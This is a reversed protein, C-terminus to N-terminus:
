SVSLENWFASTMTAGASIVSPLFSCFSCSTPIPQARGHAPRGSRGSVTSSVCHCLTRWLDLPEVGYQDEVVPRLVSLEDRPTHALTPHVRLQDRVVRGEVADPAVSGLADDQGASGHADVDVVGRPDVGAQELEADRHEADAVARLAEGELEAPRHCAGPGALEALRGERHVPLAEDELAHAGLLLAPHAMAVADRRGRRAELHQSRRRAGRDGGHLVPLAAEVCQLEVGLHHMGRPAHVDQAAEEVLGTPAFGGEGRVGHDLLGDAPDACLDAVRLGDEAEGAPDVRCLAMPSRRVQTTTSWPM